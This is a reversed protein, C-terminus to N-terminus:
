RLIVEEPAVVLPLPVSSSSCSIDDAAPSVIDAVVGADECGSAPFPNPVVLVEPLADTVTDGGSRACKM